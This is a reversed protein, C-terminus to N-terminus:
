RTGRELQGTLYLIGTWLGRSSPYFLIPFIVMFPIWVAMQVTPDVRLVLMVIFGVVFITITAVINFGMGGTIDGAEQQFRLGCSPCVERMRFWGEFMRAGRCRPCMHFFSSLLAKLM